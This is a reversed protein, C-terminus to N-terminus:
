GLVDADDRGVVLVLPAGGALAEVDAIMPEVDVQGLDSEVAAALEDADEQSDPEFYITSTELGERADAKEGIAFGAPKVVQKAVDGALGPVGPIPQGNVDVEQTGNLVAVEVKQEKETKGGGGGKGGGDGDGGFLGFGSTLVAGAVIAAAIVVVFYRPDVPSRRDLEEWRPAFREKVGAWWQAVRGPPPSGAAAPEADAEEEAATEGRAEAAAATADAAEAAREPARGAWERLRRVERAQQFILFALIALGLFALVGVIPGIKEVLDTM